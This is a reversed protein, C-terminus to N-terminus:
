NFFVEHSVNQHWRDQFQQDNQNFFLKKLCIPILVQRPNKHRLNAKVEWSFPCIGPSYDTLYLYRSHCLIKRFHELNCGRVASVCQQRYMSECNVLFSRSPSLLHTQVEILIVFKCKIRIKYNLFIRNEYPGFNKFFIRLIKKCFDYIDFAVLIKKLDLSRDKGNSGGLHYKLKNKDGNICCFNSYNFFLELNISM